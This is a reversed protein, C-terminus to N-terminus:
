FHLKDTQTFKETAVEDEIYGSKELWSNLASVDNVLDICVNPNNFIPTYENHLGVYIPGNGKNELRGKVCRDFTNDSFAMNIAEMSNFKTPYPFNKSYFNKIIEFIKNTTIELSKTSKM